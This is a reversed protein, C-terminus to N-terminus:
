EGEAVPKLGSAAQIAERVLPVTTLDLWQLLQEDTVEPHNRRIALGVIPALTEIYRFVEDGHVEQANTLFAFNAKFDAYSLSPVYYNQGNMFVPVGLFRLKPM